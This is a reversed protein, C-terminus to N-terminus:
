SRETTDPANSVPSALKKLAAIEEDRAELQAVLAAVQIQLAGLMSELIQQQTRAM